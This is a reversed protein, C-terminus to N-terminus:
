KNEHDTAPLKLTKSETSKSPPSHCFTHCPAPSMGGSTRAGPWVWLAGGKPAAHGFSPCSKNTNQHPNRPKKKTTTVLVDVIFNGLYIFNAELLALDAKRRPAERHQGPCTKQEMLCMCTGEGVERGHSGGLM